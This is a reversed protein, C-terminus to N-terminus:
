FKGVWVRNWPRHEGSINTFTVPAKELLYKVVEGPVDTSMAYYDIIVFGHNTNLINELEEFTSISPYAMYGDIIQGQPKTVYFNKRKADDIFLFGLWYVKSEPMYWHHLASHAVLYIDNEKRQTEIYEYAGKFDPQPTYDWINLEDYYADYELFYEKEPFILFNKNTMSSAIILALTITINLYIAVNSQTFINTSKKSLRTFAMVVKESLYQSLICIFRSSLIILIPLLFFLIRMILVNQSSIMILSIIFVLCLFIDKEHTKFVAIILMCFSTLFLFSNSTLLFTIYHDLRTFFAGLDFTAINHYVDWKIIKDFNLLVSLLILLIPLITIIPLKYGQKRWHIFFLLFLPVFILIGLKHLMITLILSVTLPICYLIKNKNPLLFIHFLLITLYYFFQFEIYMRIQRSWAIELYSTSLLLAAILAPVVSGYLNRSLYFIVIILFSGFVVSPFRLAAPDSGTIDYVFSTLIIHPRSRSYVRGSDLTPSGSESLKEAAIASFSEDIWLSQYDLCYLRMWTGLLVILLLSILISWRKNDARITNISSYKGM